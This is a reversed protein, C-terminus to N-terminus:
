EESPSQYCQRRYEIVRATIIDAAERVLLNRGSRLRIQTDHMSTVTEIEDANVVIETGDLRTLKIM